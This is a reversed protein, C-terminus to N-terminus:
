IGGKNNISNFEYKKTKIDKRRNNNVQSSSKAYSKPLNFRKNNISNIDGNIQQRLNHKSSIRYSVIGMNKKTSNSIIDNLNVINNRSHSNSKVKKM